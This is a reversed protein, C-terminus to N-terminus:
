VLLEEITTRLWEFGNSQAVLRLTELQKRISDVTIDMELPAALESHSSSFRISVQHTKPCRFDQSLFLTTLRQVEEILRNEMENVDLENQCHPCQWSQSSPKDSGKAQTLNSLLDLDRCTSCYNCIVDKLLYSPCPNIFNSLPSFERIRLQALLIRRLSAIEDAYTTDLALIHSTFKIFDLAVQSCSTGNTDSTTLHHFMHSLDDVMTLMKTTLSETLLQKMSSEVSRSIEAESAQVLMGHDNESALSLENRMRHHQLLYEGIVFNFYEQAAAPLFKSITWHSQLNISKRTVAQDLGDVEAADDLDDEDLERDVGVEEVAEQNIRDLFGYEDEDEEDVASKEDHKAIQKDYEDAQLQNKSSEEDKTHEDEYLIGGYNEPGLWLLEEWYDKATIEVYAFTETNHVAMLIFDVYEKAADVSRKKTDILIRNMDAYVVRVGLKKMEAILRKFLKTMLEHVLRYLLPDFLLNDGYGCLYRYVATLMSDSIPDHRIHFDDFWKTILAKLLSFAKSVNAESSSVTNASSATAALSQTDLLSSNMIACIAM